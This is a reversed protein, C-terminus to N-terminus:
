QGNAPGTACVGTSDGETVACHLGPMCPLRNPGGCVSGESGLGGRRVEDPRAPPTEIQPQQDLYEFGNPFIPEIFQDAGGILALKIFFWVALGILLVYSVAGFVALIKIDTTREQQQPM